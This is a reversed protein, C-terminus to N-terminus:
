PSMVSKFLIVSLFTHKRSMLLLSKIALSISYVTNYSIIITLFHLSTVMDLVDTNVRGVKGGGTVGPWGPTLFDTFELLLALTLPVCCLILISIM